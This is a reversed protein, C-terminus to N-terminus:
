AEGETRDVRIDSFGSPTSSVLIKTNEKGINKIRHVITANVHISDGIHLHIKKANNIVKIYGKVVLFVEEGEHQHEDGGAIYGPL